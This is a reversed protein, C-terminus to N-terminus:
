ANRTKRLSLDVKRSSARKLADARMDILSALQHATRPNAELLPELATLPIQLLRLDTAATISVPNPQGRALANEGFLDGEALEMIEMAEAAAGRYLM